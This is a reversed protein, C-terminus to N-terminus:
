PHLEAAPNERSGSFACSVGAVTVMRYTKELDRAIAAYDIYKALEEPAEGFVGDQVFQFALDYLNDILHLDIDFADAEAESLPFGAGFQGVTVIARVKQEVTWDGVAEFFPALDDQGVEIAKFLEADLLRGEVFRFDFGSAQGSEMRLERAKDRFEAASEFHFGPLSPDGPQACLTPM